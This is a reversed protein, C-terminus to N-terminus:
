LNEKFKLTNINGTRIRWSVPDGNRTHEHEEFTGNKRLYRPSIRMYPYVFAGNGSDHVQLNSHWGLHDTILLKVPVKNRFRNFM